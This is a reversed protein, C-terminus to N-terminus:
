QKWHDALRVVPETLLEVLGIRGLVDDRMVPEFETVQDAIAQYRDRYGELVRRPPTPRSGTSSACTCSRSAPRRRQGQGRARLDAHAPRCAARRGHGRARDRGPAEYRAAGPQRRHAVPHRARHRRPRRRAGDGARTGSRGRDPLADMRHGVRGRRRACRAHAARPLDPQRARTGTALVERVLPVQLLTEDSRSIGVTVTKAQHKIADVPRTLEEIAKTLADTLDEVVVSPTGVKGFDVQYADLPVVGIRTACCRRSSCRPARRSAATTTAPACGTSSANPSRSSTAARARGASGDDRQPWRASWASRHLRAGRAAPPGVRRHGARSRLRVPPRRARVARVGAVPARDARPDDRGGGARFADRRRRRDRDAGGQARPLDRGGQRRRRRELRAPGGRVGPDDAGVLPRHAEQGRHRRVRDVQLLAGLAQDAARARRDPERRERRDGVFAAVLAHRQAALAIAPRRAFVERMAARFSACRRSCSAADRATPWTTPASSPRGAGVRAPRRGGAARLVGQHVRREDGRRPRRLHLARRREQRRSREPPPERDRGRGRWAARALDVTRNTDTTTGSQSIAVVLTDSM